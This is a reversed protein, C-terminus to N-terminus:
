NMGMAYQSFHTITGSIYQQQTSVVTPVPVLEGFETDDKLWVVVLRDRQTSVLPLFRYSLRLELPKPFTSVETGTGQDRASLDLVIHPGLMATMRFVTPRQVAHPPVILEHLGLTVRGGGRGIVHTNSIHLSSWNPGIVLQYGSLMGYNATVPNRDVPATPEMRDCGCLVLAAALSSYALRKM